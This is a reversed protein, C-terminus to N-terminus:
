MNDTLMLLKIVPIQEETSNTRKEGLGEKAKRDLTQLIKIQRLMKMVEVKLM